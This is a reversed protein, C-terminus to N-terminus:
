GGQIIIKGETQRKANISRMRMRDKTNTRVAIKAHQYERGNICTRIATILAACNKYM